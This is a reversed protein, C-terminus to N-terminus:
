RPKWPKVKIGTGNWASCACRCAPADARRSESAHERVESPGFRARRFWSRIRLRAHGRDNAVAIGGAAPAHVNLLAGPGPVHEGGTQTPWWRLARPELDTADGDPRPHVFPTM